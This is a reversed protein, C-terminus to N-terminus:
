NINVNVPTTAILEKASAIFGQVASLIEQQQAATQDGGQYNMTFNGGGYSNFTAAVNGDKNVVNGNDISSMPNSANSPSVNFNASIDFDRATDNSNDIQVNASNLKVYGVTLNSNTEM